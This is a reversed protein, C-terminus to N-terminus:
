LAETRDLLHRERAAPKWFSFGHGAVQAVAIFVNEFVSLPAFLSSIQFTRVLGKRTRAASDARTLDEGFLHLRGADPRLVGTLLNVLTTKGAGNPGILATRTGAPLSLDVSRTVELAGFRKCLGTAQLAAVAGTM